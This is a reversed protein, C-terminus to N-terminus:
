AVDTVFSILAVHAAFAENLRASQRRVLSLMRPLPRIFAVLAVFCERVRVDKLDVLSNMGAFPRVFAFHAAHRERVAGIEAM